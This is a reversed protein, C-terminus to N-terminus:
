DRSLTSPPRPRRIGYLLTEASAAATAVRCNNKVTRCACNLAARWDLLLMLNSSEPDRPIVMRGFKTGKMVGAYSTLDLGSKEYGAGGSRQQEHTNDRETDPHTGTHQFRPERDSSFM